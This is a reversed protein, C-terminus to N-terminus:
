VRKYKREKLIKMARKGGTFFIFRRLFYLIIRLFIGSINDLTLCHNEKLSNFCEMISNFEQSQSKGSGEMKVVPPSEFYIGKYGGKELRVILDFDM